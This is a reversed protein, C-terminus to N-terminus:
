DEPTGLVPHTKLEYLYKPRLAPDLSEYIMRHEGDNRQWVLLIQKDPDYADVSLGYTLAEEGYLYRCNFDKSRWELFVVGNGNALYKGYAFLSLEKIISSCELEFQTRLVSSEINTM